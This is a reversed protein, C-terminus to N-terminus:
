LLCPEMYNLYAPCKEHRQCKHCVDIYKFCEQYKCWIKETSM